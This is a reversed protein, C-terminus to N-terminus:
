KGRKGKRKVSTRKVPVPNVVTTSSQRRGKPYGKDEPM